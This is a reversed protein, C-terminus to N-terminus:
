FGYTVLSIMAFALALTFTGISFPIFLDIGSWLAILLWAVGVVQLFMKAKGYINAGTPKGRWKRYIGFSAILLEVALITVGFWVNIYRLVIFILVSGVLFKDAVPDFFTGWPTIQKRVRALSGDLADSFAVVIFAPVGVRYNEFILLAIVIPTAIFRFITIHNPRVFSPVLPLFLWRMLHDHPFLRVTENTMPEHNM